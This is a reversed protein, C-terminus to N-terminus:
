GFVQFDVKSDQFDVITTVTELDVAVLGSEHNDPSVLSLAVKYDNVNVTVLDDALFAALNQAVPEALVAALEAVEIGTKLIAM